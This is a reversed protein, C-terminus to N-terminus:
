GYVKITMNGASLFTGYFRLFNNGSGDWREEAGIKYAGTAPNVYDEIIGMVGGVSIIGGSASLYVRGNWCYINQGGMTISASITLYSYGLYWWGNLHLFWGYYTTGGSVISTYTLTKTTCYYHNATLSSSITTPQSVSVSTNNISMITGNGGFMNLSIISGSNVTIGVNGSQYITNGDFGGIRLGGAYIYSSSGNTISGTTTINGSDAITFIDSQAFNRFKFGDTGTNGSHFYTTGNNEFFIRLIGDSSLIWNNKLVTLIGNINTNGNVDLLYQPNTTGIGINGNALIIIRPISTSINGGTNFVMNNTTELFLNNQYNGGYATGAIGIFGYYTSNNKIQISNNATTTTSSISIPNNAVNIQLQGSMTGGSLPLYSSLSTSLETGKYILSTPTILNSLSMSSTYNTPMTLTLTGTSFVLSGGTGGM